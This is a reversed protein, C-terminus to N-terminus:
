TTNPTNIREKLLKIVETTFKYELFILYVVFASSVIGLFYFWFTRLDEYAVSFGIIMAWILFIFMLGLTLSFVKTDNSLVITEKKKELRIQTTPLNLYYPLNFFESRRPARYIQIEGSGSDKSVGLQNNKKKLEEISRFLNDFDLNTKLITESM